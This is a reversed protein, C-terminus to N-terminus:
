YDIIMETHEIFKICIDYLKAVEVVSQISTGNEDKFPFVTNTMECIIQDRNHFKIHPRPYCHALLEERNRYPIRWYKNREDLVVNVLYALSAKTKIYLRKDTDSELSDEVKTLNTIAINTDETLIKLNYSDKLSCPPTNM